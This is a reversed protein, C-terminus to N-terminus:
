EMILVERTFRLPVCDFRLYKFARINNIKMADQAGAVWVPEVGVATM